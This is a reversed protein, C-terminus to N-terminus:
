RRLSSTTSTIELLHGDPDFAFARVEGGWPPETAPGLFVMGREQMQAVVAHCDDVEIVVEGPAEDGDGTPPVLRVARDLPADGTVALHVQGSGVQVRAYTDWQVQLDGGLRTVWFELSRALDAVALLPSVTAATDPFM